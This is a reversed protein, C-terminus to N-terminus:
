DSLGVARLMDTRLKRSYKVHYSGDDNRIDICSAACVIKSVDAEPMDLIYAAEVLGKVVFDTGNM